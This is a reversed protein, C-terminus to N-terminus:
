QKGTAKPAIAGLASVAKEVTAASTMLDMLLRNDVNFSGDYELLNRSGHCKDLVRWIEPALGLTHGLAQFAIYRKNAPRFGHWRLAALSFAHAAAYALDFRSEASLDKTKADALRKRGSDLLGDFEKQEGPEAKLLGSKVLNNLETSSM